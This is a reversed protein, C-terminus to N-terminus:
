TNRPNSQSFDVRKFQIHWFKEATEEPDIREDGDGPCYRDIVERNHRQLSQFDRDKKQYLGRM